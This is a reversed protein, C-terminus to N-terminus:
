SRETAPIWGQSRRLAEQWRERLRAADAAPMRPDFRKDISWQGSIEDVSGWFGVALGALYAAGLATTETVAPRVVAVGLVDAQFQLLTDNTAAGGDVRLEDLAIGADAHVAELLDAVQYAISELAARAIHAATTGRTIGVITGRAYADWHPAGLGAFAPVMYVGGNDDVSNALGEVDKSQRI